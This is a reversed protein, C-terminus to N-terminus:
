PVPWPAGAWGILFGIEAAQSVAGVVDGTQGGIQRRALVAVALAGVAAGVLGAAAAEPGVVRYGLWGAGGLGLAAAAVAGLGTPRGAGHGLGDTRAPALAAMAVPMAARSALAAGLIALAATGPGAMGALLAAKLGVAFVLALVGYTGIRSDRMVALKRDVDASAGFGDAVDALGDEHLAGSVLVTAAVGILACALPHLHAWAAAWLAAAGVLGVLAGAVPFAWAASALPRSDVFAGVPLRTLFAVALRLDALPSFGGGSAKSEGDATM